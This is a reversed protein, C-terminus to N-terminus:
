AGAAKLGWSINKTSMETLPQTLGLAMTRGSPNHWHFIEIVGDHISGAVKRSTACHRLWSRWRTGRPQTVDTLILGSRFIELANREKVTCVENAYSTCVEEASGLGRKCVGPVASTNSFVTYPDAVSSQLQHDLSSIAIGSKQRRSWHFIRVGCVSPSAHLCCGRSGWM